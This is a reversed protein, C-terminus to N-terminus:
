EGTAPLHARILEAVRNAVVAGATSVEWAAQVMTAARDPSLLAEVAHGLNQGSRVARAAGARTLRAYAEAQAGTAGGHLIATGLAAVEFPHRTSSGTLTGGLYTVQALRLWLGVESPTDALYVETGDDPEAGDLRSAVHLGADRLDALTPAVDEARAPSVILLLRHASRAAQRHASIIEPLEALPLDTACWVPRPGIAQALDRRERDNCGPARPLAELPGTVEVRDEPLGLRLLRQAAVHDCALAHDVGEILAATAGPMWAGGEIGLSEARIDVLVRAFGRGETESFLVPRLDGQLWIMADPRIEALFARVPQRWDAPAPALTIGPIRPANAPIDPSTVLYRATMGEAAVADAVAEVTAIRAPDPCHVWILREAPRLDPRPPPPIAGEGTGRRLALFASLSLSRSM